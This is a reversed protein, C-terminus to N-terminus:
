FDHAAVANLKQYDVCLRPSGDKKSAFVIATAWEMEALEIVKTELMEDIESKEFDRAKQGARYPTFQVPKKRTSTRDLTQRYKNMGLSWGM